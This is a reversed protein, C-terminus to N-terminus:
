RRAALAGPRRHPVAARPPGAPPTWIIFKEATRAPQNLYGEALGAGSVCLEGVAGPAALQQDPTLLYIATNAIAQGIAPLRPWGAPDGTLALQTVVHTETPGYQNYLTCHPLAACFAALQPTIKLQEGATMIETLSQPFQGRSGALEALHQLAVFPLFVRNIQEQDLFDLLAGLDQRQAETPLVLTGGTSLTAAIEQFSVDFSLPAFQLTRTGPGAASQENQWRVLNTLAAPGMAVGKPEGTSGSTYLVYALPGPLHPPLTDAAAGGAALVQLNLGTFLDTEAAPALCTTLGANAIMRALRAPPYAPDLPVYGKGARLIALVGIIMEVGRTTSIGILEQDTAQALLRATLAQTEEELEAYTVTRAGASVATLGPFAVRSQELLHQVTRLHDLM